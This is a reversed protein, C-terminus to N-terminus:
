EKGKELRELLMEAERIKYDVACDMYDTIKVEGNCERMAEIILDHPPIVLGAFHELKTLGYNIYPPNYRTNCQNCNEIVPAAPMDSNNM